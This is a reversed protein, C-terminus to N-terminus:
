APFTFYFASGGEPESDVWIQGDHREMIKRCMSLGIGIGPYDERSTGHHFMRFIDEEDERKNVHRRIMARIAAGHEDFIQTALDVKKQTGM